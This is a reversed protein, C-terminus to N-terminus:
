CLNPSHTSMVATPSQTRCLEISRAAFAASKDSFLDAIFERVATEYEESPNMWSAHIKAERIAKEMYQVIRDRYANRADETLEETPWTGVLTQYLLYEENADPCRKAM